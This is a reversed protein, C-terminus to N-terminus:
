KPCVRNTGNLDQSFKKEHILIIIFAVSSPFGARVSVRINM